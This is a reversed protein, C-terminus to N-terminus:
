DMFKVLMDGFGFTELAKLLFLWKISYFAKKFDLFLAIGPTKSDQYDTNLLPIPRWNDLITKDKNKKPILTIIGRRQSITLEGCEFAYNLSEVLQQGLSEWLALYFEASLGDSGPSKGKAMQKLSALCEDKTLLGKCSQRQDASIEPLASNNFFNDFRQDDPCTGISTYLEKYFHYEENLIEKPKTTTTRDPLKM